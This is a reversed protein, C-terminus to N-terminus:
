TAKHLHRLDVEPYAIKDMAEKLSAVPYRGTGYSGSVKDTKERGALEQGLATGHYGAARLADEFNHRFSHMGLRVGGFGEVMRSFWKGMGDGWAGNGNPRQEPFLQKHGATRQAKVFKPFGMRILETHVPLTRRGATSKVRQGEASPRVQFVLVGDVEEVDAVMLQAIEGRRMGQFLAILPGWYRLPDGSTNADFPGTWRSLRFLRNLQASTFPERKDVDAVLDIVSLGSLPNSTIWQEKVGWRFAGGIFNLYVDNVSAPGLTPLGLKKGREIAAKMSLGKLAPLKAYNRPLSRIDNFLARGDERTITSVDRTPGLLEKLVRLPAGSAKVTAPAWRPENDALYGAILDEVTHVAKDPQPQTALISRVLPDQPMVTYDGLLRSRELVLLERRGRLLAAMFSRFAKSRVDFELGAEKALREALPRVASFEREAIEERALAEADNLEQLTADIDLASGRSAELEETREADEERFWSAVLGMAEIETLPRAPHNATLQTRYEDVKSWYLKEADLKLRIAEDRSSTGLSLRFPATGSLPWLEKPYAKNFYWRGNRQILGTSKAMKLGEETVNNQSMSLSFGLIKAM